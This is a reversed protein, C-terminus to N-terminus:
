LYDRLDMVRNSKGATRELTKPEVLTIKASIGLAQRVKSKIKEEIARMVRMEDSFWKENLEVKIELADLAGERTVVLQYHPETEEMDILVTEVQSPFINVGRIILMDDTRGHPKSMRMFTRGCECSKNFLTTIDRTRYRLVPIAEKTLTTIVLEGIEGCPLIEGTKPDIIECLFHDENIHMGNKQKCEMSVGPGMVESLGYNDTASIALRTEIEDRMSDTWPEGGFCGVRLALEKPDIGKEALAEGLYVAYSPTCILATSKFERMIMIQRATNGSSVPIVTAGLKEAGYHLGFGGTFLGYGFSIQIVDKQSVGGAVLLRAICESWNDLDQRTYGVVTPRGTTGSSAHLRIVQEMPVAFMEYPYNNQMEDKTTFPLRYYDKLTRIDEPKIGAKDLKGKYFPVKEYVYKVTQRLRSLQLTELENRPLTEAKENWIM